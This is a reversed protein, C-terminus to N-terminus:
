GPLPFVDSLLKGLAAATALYLDFVITFDISCVFPIELFPRVDLRQVERIHPGQESATAVAYTIEFVGNLSRLSDIIV